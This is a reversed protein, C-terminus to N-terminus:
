PEAGVSPPKCWPEHPEAVVELPFGPRTTLDTLFTVRRRAEQLLRELVARCYSQMAQEDAFYTFGSAKRIVKPRGRVQATFNKVRGDDGLTVRRALYRTVKPPFGAHFVEWVPVLEPEEPM